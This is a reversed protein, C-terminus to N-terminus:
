FLATAVQAKELALKANVHRGSVTVPKLEAVETGSELFVQKLQAATMDPALALVQAAIGAVVPAAMSTGSMGAFKAGDPNEFATSIMPDAPAHGGPAVVDVSKLGFNSYSALVDTSTSSGVTLINENTLAAPFVPNEDIDLGLGSHPDGNGAAVVLLAGKTEAYNVARVIAPHPAQGASGLSLNIVRAGRDVAYQIAAAISGADGGMSTMAKVALIKAKPALGFQKAAALGAVHTGHGDDDYPFGDANVFDYGLRDDVFGNKDSDQGDETDNENLAINPALLPHNYNVGSDIIAVTVGEGQSIKWSEEASVRALHTLKSLDVRGSQQKPEYKRNVTAIFNVGDLSCVDRSDQVVVFVNYAGLADPTFELESGVEIRQGIKSGGPGIVIFASKLASPSLLHPKSKTSSIKITQGLQVPRVASVPGVPQTVTAVATPFQSAAKCANLGDVKLGVPGPVAHLKFDFYRNPSVEAAPALEKAQEATVGFIEFLGHQPNLERLKAEPYKKLIQQIEHSDKTEVLVGVDDKGTPAQKRAQNRMGSNCATLATITLMVGLVKVKGMKEEGRIM